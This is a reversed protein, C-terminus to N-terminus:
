SLVEKKRKVIGIIIIIILLLGFIIYYINERFFNTKKDTENIPISMKLEKESVVDDTWEQCVSLDENGECYISGYYRNYVPLNLNIKRLINSCGNAKIIFQKKGSKVLNKITKNVTYYEESEEDFVFVENTLGSVKITYYDNIVTEGNNLPEQLEYTIEVGNAIEKLRKIDYADCAEANVNSIFMIMFFTFLIFKDM